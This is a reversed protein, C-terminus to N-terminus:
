ASWPPTRRAAPCGSATLRKYLYLDEVDDVDTFEPGRQRSRYSSIYTNTLIRFLWARLNTGAEFRDYARFAKLYTEQLLDEADAPEQDDPDCGRVARRRLGPGRGRVPAPDAM